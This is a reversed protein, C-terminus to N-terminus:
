RFRWALERQTDPDGVPDRLAVWSRGAVGYMLFGRDQEDFLLRKDGLLALAAASDDARQALRRARELDQPEPPDPEPQAPRFLRRLAFVATAAVVGVTARM